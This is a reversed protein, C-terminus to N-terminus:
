RPLPLNIRDIDSALLAGAKALTESADKGIKWSSAEWPWQDPPLANDLIHPGYREQHAAALAYCAAAKAIEGKTYQKDHERTFGKERQRVQEAAIRAIGSGSLSYAKM